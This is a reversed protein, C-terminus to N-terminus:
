KEKLIEIQAKAKAIVINNVAIVDNLKRLERQTEYMQSITYGMLACSCMLAIIFAFYSKSYVSSAIQSSVLRDRPNLDILKSSKM